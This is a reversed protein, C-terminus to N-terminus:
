AFIWEIILSCISGVFLVATIGAPILVVPLAKDKELEHTAQIAYYSLIFQYVTLGVVIVWGIVPIIGVAIGVLWLPAMFAALLYTQVDFDGQAGGLKAIVFLIISYIFLSLPTFVAAFLASVLGFIFEAGIKDSTAFLVSIAVGILVRILMGVLGAFVMWWWAVKPQAKSKEIEFTQLSPNFLVTRWIAFTQDINM